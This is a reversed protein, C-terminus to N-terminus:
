TTEVFFLIPSVPAQKDYPQAFGSAVPFELSMAIGYGQVMPLSGQECSTANRITFDNSKYLSRRDIM